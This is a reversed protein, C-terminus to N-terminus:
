RRMKEKSSSEIAAGLSYDERSTAISKQYEGINISKKEPAVPVEPPQPAPPFPEQLQAPPARPQQVPPPEFDKHMITIGRAILKNQEMLTEIKRLIEKNEEENRGAGIEKEALTKASVEFLDLLKSIQLSLEGFKGSLNTMVRQLSVFNEVLIKEVNADTIRPISPVRKKSVKRKRKKKSSNRKKAKEEVTTTVTKVVKKVM